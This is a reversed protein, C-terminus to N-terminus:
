HLYFQEGLTHLPHEYDAWLPTFLQDIVDDDVKTVDAYQWAPQGTKEILRARVGEYFEGLDGCRVSLTLEMRFCDALSENHFQTLQRYCIHATIPSGERLATQAQSLWKDSQPAHAIRPLADIRQCISALSGSHCAAQIAPLYPLMQIEPYADIASEGLSSLVQDVTSFISVDLWQAQQLASFLAERQNTLLIHDTMSLALADTANVMAGTLGLFMGVGPPLQNLFWTGGVDPYLGINIEPMALRSDPTTIRHSAGMYLGMGGGMVIGGGWVIIPKPYTHILYDTQYELTFYDTLYQMAKLAAEHRLSPEQGVQTSDAQEAEQVVERAQHMQLYMARVDGGACFAKEGVAHIVVCAVTDDDQWHALAEHLQALMDYTLANLSAPNDLEAVGIHFGETSPLVQINVQGTM